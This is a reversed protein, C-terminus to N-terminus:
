RVDGVLREIINRTVRDVAPDRSRLGVRDHRRDRRHRRAPVNRARRSRQAAADLNQPSDDGFLREAHFELEYAGGPALPLPTTDEDFPTAPATASWKSTRRREAPAPPSRCRRRAADLRLRRVRLRGDDGGRRAPRRARSRDRRAALPRAPPGRLRRERAPVSRGIRHYGGRTFSVGTLSAEPRGVIPDSWMTTTLHQQDTGYVPDEAFRHKYCVMRSGEIRVQWYCTNGSLFAVNGGGDVFRDVRTACRGAGTSTTVSASTAAPLRRAADPQQEVDANTAFDLDIGAASPGRRSGASRAPGDPWATGCASATSTPTRRRLRPRRRRAARRTGRAQRAHGVVLPREFSPTTAGTYLNRGGFDNYANWTNTALVLLCGSSATSAAACSSSRPSRISTSPGRSASASSTCAAAGRADTPITLTSRGAAATRTRRRRCRDARRDRHRAAAVRDRPEGSDRVVEVDVATGDGVCAVRGARRAAREAALLLGRGGGGYRRVRLSEPAECCARLSPRCAGRPWAGTRVRAAM